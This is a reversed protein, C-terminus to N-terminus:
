YDMQPIPIGLRECQEIAWQHLNMYQIDSATVMTVFGCVYRLKEHGVEFIFIVEDEPVCLQLADVTETISGFKKYFEPDDDSTCEFITMNEYGGLAFRKIGDEGVQEWIDVEALIYRVVKRFEEEDKVRFYSTRSTCIYNAM